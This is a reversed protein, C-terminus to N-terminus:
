KSNTWRLHGMWYNVDSRRIKFARSGRHKVFKKYPMPSSESISNKGLEKAIEAVPQVARITSPPIPVVVDIRGLTNPKDNFFDAMIAAVEIATQHGRYKLQYVLEGLPSRKTDFQAHGNQDYGLFESSTTHFDLTWGQRWAGQVDAPNTTV